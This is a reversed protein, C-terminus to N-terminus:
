DYIRVTLTGLPRGSASDVLLGTYLDAPQEDDVEVRLVPAGGNMMLRVQDIVPRSTDRARLGDCTMNEVQDVHPHLDLQVEAARRSAVAVSMAPPPPAMREATTASPDWGDAPPAPASQTIAGLLKMGLSMADNVYILSRETLVQLDATLTELHSGQQRSTRAAQERGQRIHEEIVQYGLEVGRAAVSGFAAAGAASAAQGQTENASAGPPAGESPAGASPSEAFPTEASTEGAASPTATSPPPVNQSAQANWRRRGPMNRIPETREPDRRRARPRAEHSM